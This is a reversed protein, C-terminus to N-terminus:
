NFQKPLPLILDPRVIAELRGCNDTKQIIGLWFDYLNLKGQLTLKHYTDLLEFTFGTRPRDFSAPYWGVRLFQRYREFWGPGAGCTCFHARVVHWGNTHVVLLNQPTSTSPCQSNQHGM